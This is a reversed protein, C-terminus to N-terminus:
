RPAYQVGEKFTIRSDPGIEGVGTFVAEGLPFRALVEGIPVEAGVLRGTTRGIRTATAVVSDGLSTVKPVTAEVSVEWREGDSLWSIPRCYGSAMVLGHSMNRPSGMRGTVLHVEVPEFPVWENLIPNNMYFAPEELWYSLSEPARWDWGDGCDILSTKFAFREGLTYLSGGM